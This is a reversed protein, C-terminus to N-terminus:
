NDTNRDAAIGALQASLKDFGDRTETRLAEVQSEIRNHEVTNERSGAVSSTLLFLVSTGAVGSGIIAWTTPGFLSTWWEM